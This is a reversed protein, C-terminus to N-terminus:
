VQSQEGHNLVEIVAAIGHQKVIEQASESNMGSQVLASVWQQELQGRAEVRHLQYASWRKYIEDIMKFTGWLLAMTQLVPILTTGFEFDEDHAMMMTQEPTQGSRLHRWVRESELDFVDIESALAPTNCVLERLLALIRDDFNTMQAEKPNASTPRPSGRCATVGRDPM